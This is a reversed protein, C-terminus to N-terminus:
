GSSELFKALGDNEQTKLKRKTAAALAALEIRKREREEKKKQLEAEKEVKRKERDERKAIVDPRSHYADKAKQIRADRNLRYYRADRSMKIGSADVVENQPQVDDSEM